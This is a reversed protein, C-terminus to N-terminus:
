TYWFHPLHSTWSIDLLVNRPPNRITSVAIIIVVFRSFIYLILLIALSFSVVYIIARGILTTNDELDLMVIVAGILVAVPTVTLVTAAFRWHVLYNPSPFESEWALLHVAGFIMGVISAAIAPGLSSVTSVHFVSVRLDNPKPTCRTSGTLKGWQRIMYLGGSVTMVRLFM